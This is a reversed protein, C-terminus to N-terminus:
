QRYAGAVAANLLDNGTIGNRRSVRPAPCDQVERGRLQPVERGGVHEVRPKFGGLEGPVHHQEADGPEADDILFLRRQAQHVAYLDM